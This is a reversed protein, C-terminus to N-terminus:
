KKKVTRELFLRKEFGGRSEKKHEAQDLIEQMNYGYCEGIAKVVEVVDGLEELVQCREYAEATETAEELLKKKLERVYEEFELTRTIPIEGNKTIKDPIYDRVLKNFVQGDKYGFLENRVSNLDKPLGRVYLEYLDMHSYVPGDHFPIEDTHVRIDMEDGFIRRLIYRSILRGKHDVFLMDSFYGGVLGMSIYRTTDDMLKFSAYGHSASQTSLVDKAFDYSNEIIYQLKEDSYKRELEKRREERREETNDYEYCYVSVLYDKYEQLSIM